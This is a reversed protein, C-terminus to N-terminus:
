TPAFASIYQLFRMALPNCVTTCLTVRVSYQTCVVMLHAFTSEAVYVEDITALESTLRM